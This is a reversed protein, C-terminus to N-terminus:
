RMELQKEMTTTSGIRLHLTHEDVNTTVLLPWCPLSTIINKKLAVYPKLEEKIAAYPM